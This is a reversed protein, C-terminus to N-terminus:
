MDSRYAHRTQIGTRYTLVSRADQIAEAHRFLRGSSVTFWEGRGVDGPEGCNSRIIQARIWSATM